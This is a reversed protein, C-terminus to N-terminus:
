LWAGIFCCLSAVTTLQARLGLWHALGTQRYLRYDVAFCVLLSLAALLLGWRVPLLLALWALLSPSVGWVMQFAIAPTDVHDDASRMVLGWHIGGLFSVIVAGYALLAFGVGSRAAPTCLFLGILGGVFPLLGAFGLGRALPPVSTM